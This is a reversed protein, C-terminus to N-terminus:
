EIPVGALLQGADVRVDYPAALAAPHRAALGQGVVILHRRAVATRMLAAHFDPASWYQSLLTSSVGAERGVMDRTVRDFGHIEALRLGADLLDDMREAAPKRTM